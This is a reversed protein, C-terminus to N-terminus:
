LGTVTVPSTRQTTTGDGLQGFNNYGWCAVTGDSRTACSHWFGASVAVADSLGTVAVPTSSDWTTGNGLQGGFSNDGWCAVTGGSRLACSHDHGATVAVADTLGTVAVPTSSDWDTGNGLQWQFNRGWCSVTGGSRLACSHDRGGIVAVADTLGTVAVPTLSHSHTDGNGLQGYYNNGWCAITGGGRVACSHDHGATVAVADTLGTVAVPTPSDTTTGNGLQGVNNKGWCAVTGGSRLACVHPGYTGWQGAAVAVADTLGTVAVPTPSDTTTGNGLQGVNNKGWCAVTGGSRLACSYYDGVTVAVADTIGTVAVPTSSDTTTGTGLQGRNNWGWCAVTGGSRVACSHYTGAAVQVAHSPAPLPLPPAVATDTPQYTGTGRTSQGTAGQALRKSYLRASALNHNLDWPGFAGTLDLSADLYADVTWAPTTATSVNAEVASNPASTSASTPKPSARTSASTTASGPRPTRRPTLRDVTPNFTVDSRLQDCGSLNTTSDKTVRVGLRCPLEL